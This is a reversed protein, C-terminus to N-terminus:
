SPGAYTYIIYIYVYLLVQSSLVGSLTHIVLIAIKHMFKDKLM